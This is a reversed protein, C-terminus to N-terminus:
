YEYDGNLRVHRHVFNVGSFGDNFVNFDIDIHCISRSHIDLLETEFM